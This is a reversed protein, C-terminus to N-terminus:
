EKYCHRCYPNDFSDPTSVYEHKGTPSEQCEVNLEINKRYWAGSRSIMFEIINNENIDPNDSVLIRNRQPNMKIDEITGWIPSRYQLIEGDHLARLIIRLNGLNFFGIMEESKNDDCLFEYQYYEISKQLENQLSDIEQQIEEPKRM